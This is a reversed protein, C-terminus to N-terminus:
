SLGAMKMFTESKLYEERLADKIPELEENTLGLRAPVAVDLDGVLHQEDPNYFASKSMWNALNVLACLPETSERPTHHNAISEILM